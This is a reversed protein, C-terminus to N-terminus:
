PCAFIECCLVKNHMFSVPLSRSLAPQFIGGVELFADIFIENDELEQNYYLTRLQADTFPNLEGGVEAEPADPDVTPLSPYLHDPCVFVMANNCLLSTSYEVCISFALPGIPVPALLPWQNSGLTVERCLNLGVLFQDGASDMGRYLRHM